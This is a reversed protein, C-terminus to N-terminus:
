APARGSSGSRWGVCNIKPLHFQLSSREESKIRFIEVRYFFQSFMFKSTNSCQDAMDTHKIVRTSVCINIYVNQSLFWEQIHPSHRYIYSSIYTHSHTHKGKEKQARKQHGNQVGPCKGGLIEVCMKEELESGQRQHHLTLHLQSQRLDCKAGEEEKQGIKGFTVKKYLVQEANRKGSQVV